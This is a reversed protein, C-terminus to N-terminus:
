STRPYRAQLEGATCGLDEAIEEDSRGRQRLHAIMQRLQRSADNAQRTAENIRRTAENARLTAEHLRLTEANAFRSAEEHPGNQWDAARTRQDARRTEEDSRRTEADIRRTEADIRRIEDADRWCGAESGREAAEARREEADACRRTAEARREQADACRGFYVAWSQDPPLTTPHAPTQTGNPQRNDRSQEAQLSPDESM